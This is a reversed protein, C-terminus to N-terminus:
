KFNNKIASMINEPLRRNIDDEWEFWFENLIFNNEDNEDQIFWGEIFVKPNKEIIRISYQHGGEHWFKTSPFMKRIDERTFCDGVSFKNGNEDIVTDVDEMCQINFQKPAVERFVQETKITVEELRAIAEKLESMAAIEPKSGHECANVMDDINITRM